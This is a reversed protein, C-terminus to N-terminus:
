VTPSRRVGGAVCSQLSRLLRLTALLPGEAPRAGGRCRTAGCRSAGSMCHVLIRTNAAHAGDTACDDVREKTLAGRSMRGGLRKVRGAV